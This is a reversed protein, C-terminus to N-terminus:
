TAPYSEGRCGAVASRVRRRRMWTARMLATGNDRGSRRDVDVGHEILLDISEPHMVCQSLLSNGSNDTIEPNLGAELLCSLLRPSEFKDIKPWEGDQIGSLDGLETVLQEIQEVEDCEDTIYDHKMLRLLRRLTPKAKSTKKVTATTKPKAIAQQPKKKKGKNKKGIPM